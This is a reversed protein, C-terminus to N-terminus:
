FEIGGGESELEAKRISERRATEREQLDRRIQKGEDTLADGLSGHEPRTEVPSVLRKGQEIFEEMVDAPVVVDPEAAGNFLQQCAEHKIYDRWQKGYGGRIAELGEEGAFRQTAYKDARNNCAVEFAQGGPAFVEFSGRVKDAAKIFVASPPWTQYVHERRVTHFAERLVDRDYNKLDDRYFSLALDADTVPRPKGWIATMPQIIEDYVADGTEPEVPPGPLAKQFLDPVGSM